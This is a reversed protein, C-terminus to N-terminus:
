PAKTATVAENVAALVDYLDSAGNFRRDGLIMTPTRTVNDARGKNKLNSVVNAYRETEVCAAFDDPFGLAKGMDKLQFIRQADVNSYLAAVFSRYERTGLARACWAANHSLNSGAIVPFDRLRIKLRSDTIAGKELTTLLEDHFEKCEPCRYDLYVVLEVPAKPDGLLIGQEQEEAPLGCSTLFLLAFASVFLKKYM